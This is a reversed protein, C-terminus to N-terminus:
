IIIYVIARLATSVITQISTHRVVCTFSIVQSPIRSMAMSKIIVTSSIARALFFLFDSSRKLIM